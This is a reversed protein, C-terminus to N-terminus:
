LSDGISLRVGIYLQAYMYNFDSAILFIFKHGLKDMLYSFCELWGKFRLFGEKEQAGYFAARFLLQPRSHRNNSM